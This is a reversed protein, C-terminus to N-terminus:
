QSITASEFNWEAQSLRDSIGNKNVGFVRDVDERLWLNVKHLNTVPKVGAIAMTRAFARGSGSYWEAIESPSVYAKRFKALEVLPIGGSNKRLLGFKIARGLVIDNFGVMRSAALASIDIDPLPMARAIELNGQLDAYSVLLRTTWPGEKKLAFAAQKGSIIADFAEAWVFPSLDHRLADSLLTLKNGTPPSPLSSMARDISKISEPDLLVKRTMTAVNRDAIQDVSGRDILASVAYVPIGLNRALQFVTVGKRMRDVSIELQQTDFLHVTRTRDVVCEGDMQLRHLLPASVGLRQIAEIMTVSSKRQGSLALSKPVRRSPIELDQFVKAVRQKLLGRLPTNTKSKFFRALPGLRELLGRQDKREMLISRVLGDFRDPWNRLIDLGLFLGEEGLSTFDGSALQRCLGKGDSVANAALAGFEVLASFVQGPEWFNFPEALKSVSNQRVLAQVHVLGAIERYRPQLSPCLITSRKDLPADCYECVSIGISRSWGLVSCCASCDFRLREFTEPCYMLPRIMWVSRGYPSRKLAISSFRRKATEVFRRELPTGFWDISAVPADIHRPFMRRRVDELSMALLSAIKKSNAIQTFPVLATRAADLHAHRLLMATAPVANADASRAIISLLSEDSYIKVTACLPLIM